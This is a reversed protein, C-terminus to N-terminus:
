SKLKILPHSTLPATDEGLPAEESPPTSSGPCPPQRAQPALAPGGLAERGGGADTQPRLEEPAPCSGDMLADPDTLTGKQARAIRTEPAHRQREGGIGERRPQVADKEGSAGPQAGPRPRPRKRPFM